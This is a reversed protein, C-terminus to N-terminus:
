NLADWWSKLAPVSGSASADDAYWVQNTPPLKEILPLTSLAYFPMALPDGQTTGECSWIVNNEIFLETPSRYTNILTTALPPCKFRINLLAVSRNLSNFANEADVLLVAETEEMQFATQTALVAAEVGSIQGACLQISGAAMLVDDKVVSLIAKAIIRRVTEGIGIPRVGPCKDLAVLRCALLSSICAPDILECAIRKASLAVANCLDVSAGRFSTCLRRWAFADLYSPGAAGSTRLAVSRILDANISEFMVPHFDPACGQIVADPCAPLGPPHKRKLVDRM